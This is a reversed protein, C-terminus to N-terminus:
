DGQARIINQCQQLIDTIVSKEKDDMETKELELKAEAIALLTRAPANEFTLWTSLKAPQTEPQQIVHEDFDPQTQGKPIFDIYLDCELAEAIRELLDMSPKEKNNEVNSYHGQSIDALEALTAQSMGRETRRKAIREGLNM